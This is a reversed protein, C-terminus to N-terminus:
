DGIHMYEYATLFKQNNVILGLSKTSIADLLPTVEEATQYNLMATSKAPAAAHTYLTDIEMNLEDIYYNDYEKNIFSIIQDGIYGMETIPPVQGDKTWTLLKNQAYTNADQEMKDEDLEVWNPNICQKAHKVEHYLAVLVNFWANAKILTNPWNNTTFCKHLDIIITKTAPIYVSLADEIITPSIKKDFIIKKLTRLGEAEKKAIRVLEQPPNALAIFDVM